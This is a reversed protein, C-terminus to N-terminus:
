FTEIITEKITHQNLFFLKKKVLSCNMDLRYSLKRIQVSAETCQFVHLTSIPIREILSPLACWFITKIISINNVINLYTYGYDVIFFYIYLHLEGLPDISGGLTLLQAFLASYIDSTTNFCFFCSSAVTTVVIYTHSFGCVDM